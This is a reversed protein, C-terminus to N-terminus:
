KGDRKMQVANKKRLFDPFCHDIAYVLDLLGNLHKRCTLVEGFEEHKGGKLASM